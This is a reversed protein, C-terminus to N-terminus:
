KIQFKLGFIFERDNPYRLNDQGPTLPNGRNGLEPNFGIYNTWTLVNNVALSLSVKGIGKVRELLSNPLDYNLRIYRLKIFDGSTVFFSNPRERNQNVRNLRPYVTVDGQEKWAGEIRDPGPTELSSNLDNRLEDWRRYIDQGYSYDFLFSLKLNKYNLDNFFGGFFDPLGNGIVQRDTATIDFDGDLDEWIIDGGVLVQGANTMQTVDGGTYAAGDLSYGVFNNAGDFNPTLRQGDPTYANSEDYAYVGLNKYGYMNGIPQGEEVIYQGSVEFPTGGDLQTVENEQYSINFSSYWSFDQTQLITGGIGIDIGRNDVAGVNKRISSFGSEEPLPVNALLDTTNKEWLDITLDIRNNLLGIDFGINTSTTSEWSLDPNALRTPYVGNVGDYIAGPLFAGTFDYNGIRENGTIGYSARILLNSIINHDQLFGENTVRWGLTASPFYGYKNNEGFRSSGDRRITAGFLYKNQYDYNFGAFLSFLNNRSNTADLVTLTTPDINNFTEIDDSIFNARQDINEFFYKQTQMGAFASLDHDGWTKKYNFYNEQQIDYSMRFRQRGIPIGSNPNITIIPQFDDLKNLRFNVGLTSKLSLGPLIELQAYSFTQARYNRTKINRETEAVPNQRANIEPSLDGNPEFIPFYAVREVLHQFVAPEQLGNQEEYTLNLKTGLKFRKHPTMDVKLLSNLRQYDSNLVIGDENIFGTNWYFKGKEGGGRVAVNVQQRLSQRTVMEQLDNSNRNIASLSDREQTTLVSTNDQRLKEYLIRQRTNSVRIDGVLSSVSTISSVDVKLTGKEGSKTTIIVVGNAAKSGYIAATAGDKLVELSKIDNPDLNDIDDLQQGDVVYLPSTGGGSFTSIGRVRIDFGAGPGGNSLIQVGSLRGQVADFAGIPTAQVIEDEKVSAMAGLIKERSVPAYGIVVVEDLTQASESLTFNIVTNDGVAVEQNEFGTYSFVLIREGAELLVSYNGDVDTADGNGTGKQLVNVGILPEGSKDTVQGTIRDQANLSNLTFSSLVLVLLFAFGSVNKKKKFLQKM